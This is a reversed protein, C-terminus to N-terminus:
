CGVGKTEEANALKPLAAALGAGLAMAGFQRRTVDGSRRAFEDLDDQECM